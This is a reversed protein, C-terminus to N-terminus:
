WARRTSTPRATSCCGRRTLTATRPLYTCPPGRTRHAHAAPLLSSPAPDHPQHDDPCSAHACVLQARKRMYPQPFLYPLPLSSAHTIHPASLTPASSHPGLPLAPPMLPTPACQEGQMHHQTSSGEVMRAMQTVHSAGPGCRAPEGDSGACRGGESESGVARSSAASM